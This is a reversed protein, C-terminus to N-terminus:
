LKSRASQAKAKIKPALKALAAHSEEHGQLAECAEMWRSIKPFSDLAIGNIGFLGTYRDSCQGIECYCALDAVTPADGCLWASQGLWTEVTSLSGHITKFSNEVVEKPVTIDTRVIPMFLGLTIQRTNGHHWNMYQHIKARVKPNAPYLNWGFKDGLYCMIAHSENLVFDGEELRPVTAIPNKKRYDDQRTDKGPMIQVEEVQTGEYLCAWSLARSPQSIPMTYLRIAM